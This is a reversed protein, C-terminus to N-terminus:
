RAGRSCKGLCGLWKVSSGRVGPPSRRDVGPAPVAPDTAVAPRKRCSRRHEGARPRDVSLRQFDDVYVLRKGDPSVGPAHANAGDVIRTKKGTGM